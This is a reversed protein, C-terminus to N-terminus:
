QPVCISVGAGVITSNLTTVTSEKKAVPDWKTVTSPGGPSTFVYFDGGYFAFAWAYNVGGAQLKTDSIIQATTKDIEYIHSGSTKDASYGFLRGDATGTLETALIPQSFSGISSLKMTTTDIWGLGKSPIGGLQSEAVYLREGGDEATYGMGFTTWGLQKPKYSTAKCSANGVNLAFLEGSQFFVSYATGTRDVAMSWPSPGSAPCQIDNIKKFSTPPLYSWLENQETILYVYPPGGDPCQPTIPIDDPLDPGVDIIMSADRRDVSADRVHVDPVEADVSTELDVDLDTRAGCAVALLIPLKRWTQV